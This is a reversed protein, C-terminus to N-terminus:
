FSRLTDLSQLPYNPWLSPYTRLTYDTHNSNSSSVHFPRLSYPTRLSNLSRLSIIASWKLSM